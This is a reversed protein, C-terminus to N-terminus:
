LIFFNKDIIIVMIMVMDKIVIETSAEVLTRRFLVDSDILTPLVYVKFSFPAFPFTDQFDELLDIAVTDEFPLTVALFTPFVVIEAFYLFLVYLHLTETM